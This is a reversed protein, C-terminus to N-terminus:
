FEIIEYVPACTGVSWFQMTKNIFFCCHRSKNSMRNNPFAFWFHMSRTIVSTFFVSCLHLWQHQHFRLLRADIRIFDPCVHMLNLDYPWRHSTRVSVECVSECTVPQGTPRLMAVYRDIIRAVNNQWATGSWIQRIRIRQDSVSDANIRKIRMRTRYMARTPHIKPILFRSWPPGTCIITETKLLGFLHWVRSM